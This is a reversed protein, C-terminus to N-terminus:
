DGQGLFLAAEERVLAEAIRRSDPVYRGEAVQARLAEVKEARVDPTNQAIRRAETLLLADRSVRVTDGGSNEAPAKASRAEKPATSNKELRATSYPDFLTTHAKRIEM